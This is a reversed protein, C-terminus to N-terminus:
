REKLYTQLVSSLNEFIDMKAEIGALRERIQTDLESHGRDRNSLIKELRELTGEIRGSDKMLASFQFEQALSKSALDQIKAEMHSGESEVRGIREGQGKFKEELSTKLQKFESDFHGSLKDIKMDIPAKVAKWVVGLVVVAIGILQVVLAVWEGITLPWVSDIM